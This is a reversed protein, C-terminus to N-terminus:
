RPKTIMGISIQLAQVQESIKVQAATVKTDLNDVKNSLEKQRERNSAEREADFKARQESITELLLVRGQTQVQGAEMSRGWIVFPGGLVVAIGILGVITDM